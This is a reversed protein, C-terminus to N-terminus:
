SAQLRHRVTQSMRALLQRAGEIAEDGELWKATFSGRLASQGDPELSWLFCTGDAYSNVILSYGDVLWETEIGGDGDGAIQPTPGDDSALHAITLAANRIAIETASKNSLYM